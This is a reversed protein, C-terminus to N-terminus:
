KRHHQEHKITSYLPISSSGSNDVSVWDVNFGTIWSFPQKQIHKDNYCSSYCIPQELTLQELSPLTASHDHSRPWCTLRHKLTQSYM